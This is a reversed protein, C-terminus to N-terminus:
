HIYLHEPPIGEQFREYMIKYAAEIHKVFLPTNFLQTTCRNVSLKNKIYALREPNTALEVALDEYEKRTSTILEPLEIANLLSAALRSAFSEGMMTIIPLGAWLADSATTGANYPFTDLFLDCLKYRALYEAKPLRKGFIIRDKHIGRIEAEKILNTRVWENDVYIFLISKPTALMIRTWSDFTEPLLKYNNNFCAFIFGDKPLGLDERTFDKNAIKRSSDNVQYCPLYVIKESYHAKLHDPIIIKDAILYDMYPAGMTGLYGIYSVQIPAARYSFIGTRSDQTYGGLDIAIDIELERALKAVATDSKNELDIFQDFGCRLRARMSDSFSCGQLSFAFVEFETRDHLEFLEAMLISVAHEKFDASFYAIRIKQHTVRAIKPLTDRSPFKNKVWLKTNELQLKPSDVVSLLPFPTCAALGEKISDILLSINNKLNGWEGVLLQSHVLEGLLYHHQPNIEYTTEFSKLALDFDKLAIHAFGMNFWAEAHVNDIEIVKKYSLLAGQHKKTEFLALGKNLWAECSMPAVKTALEFYKLAVSLNHLEKYIIGLNILAESNDKDLSAALECTALAENYKKLKLQTVGLNTLTSTRNPALVLSAVFDREAEEFEHNQLHKLGDLFHNKAKQFNDM